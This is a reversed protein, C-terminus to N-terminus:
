DRFVEVAEKVEPPAAQFMSVLQIQTPTALQDEVMSKNDDDLYLTQAIERAVVQIKDDMNRMICCELHALKM